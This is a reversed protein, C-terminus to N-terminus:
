NIKDSEDALFAGEDSGDNIFTQGKKQLGYGERHFIM